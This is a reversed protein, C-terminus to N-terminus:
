DVKVSLLSVIEKDERAPDIATDLIFIRENAIGGKQVIYKAIAQAREAALGKLRQEEPKIIASLKDKAIAYFEHTTTDAKTGVIRVRGLLTKEVMLPFKEVFLQEMLRRYDQDSIVVHEARIKRGGQKNIEDAKIRKLQDYLADDSVAPWDQEQYAAGKIELKLESRKNLAKVLDDLKGTQKKDLEATGAPFSITSLDAESGVLSALARFPSTIVKSIANVLADVILHTVSFKPDELSGTIPIDLRIKGDADKMLAVALELPLSVANPNEVKEGLELRDILINNTATLEGNSVKYNLELSMKGKEVKYGAFQVMYSSILPMPMGTFNVSVDFDGRSPNIEGKVDVPALDYATGKLNVKVTSKKDSSLNSAGGGLSKIQAAFPLILSLDSFDSSGDIIEIKGLKYEPKNVEAQTKKAAKVAPKHTVKEVNQEALLVDNFNNTRDKKIVIRVYPKNITLTKASYQNAPLDADIGKLKLSEWKIFDKNKLQDRTILDAIETNGAFKIDMKDQASKAVTVKGDAALKGDIIDLKAFKDVYAQFKALDVGKADVAIQASLPEIVANGDLKILGTENLGASLQFPLSAGAENNYNTLQFNVPKVTITAPKKLTQDEFTLGCNNLAFHNVKISWPTKEVPEIPPEETKAVPLLSQYSLVGEPNLWAVFDANDASVSEIILENKNLDFGIGQVAFKVMKVMPKDHATASAQFDHLELKSQNLSVNFKDDVYDAKYDAELLEYGQLDLQVYDQLALAQIRPLQVKELKIHGTSSLPNLGIIGQWDLKGGSNLELSLGLKSQQDAQTTFNEIDLNIPYATEKEPSSLHADEWDLRGEAISLKAINIPFIETGEQKAEGKDKLLDKFNFQGEKDRAIRVAPKSLLMKDVVLATQAISELGNIDIFLEDFGVFQQGSPEQFTFGQLSLQLSFPNFRATAVSTKRGTEQQILAPLQSKILMPILFFGLLTYIGLLSGAIFVAIKIKTPIRRIKM